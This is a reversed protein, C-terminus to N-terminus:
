LGEKALMDSSNRTLFVTSLLIAHLRVQSASISRLQTSATQLNIGSVTGRELNSVKAQKRDNAMHVM